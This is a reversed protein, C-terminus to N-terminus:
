NSKLETTIEVDRIVDREEKSFLKLVQRPMEDNIISEHSKPTLSHVTFKDDDITVTLTGPTLTISNGLIMKAHSSPLDVKFVIMSTEARLHPRMVVWAVHFGALLIQYVMWFIYYFAFGFRVQELGQMDDEFFSHSKLKYNFVMVGIVSVVGMSLHIADLYGSMIVWFLMLSIFSMITTFFSVKNM